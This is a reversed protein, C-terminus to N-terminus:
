DWVTLAKMVGSGPAGLVEIQKPLEKYPLTHTVYQEVPFLGKRLLGLVAGLDQQTANRCCLVSLERAHIYPHEFELPGKYLGVIGYRGGHALYQVGTEIAKRNGTADMVLTPLDGSTIEKLRNLPDKLGNVTYEVGLKERCYNLRDENIDLAIVKAGAIRAQAIIGTGIPGCGMVLMYEEKQVAVRALAHAGIALPEVVALAEPSLDNAKILHSLPYSFYEQMGGDMHVGFLELSTCCNTKGNRCAICHGCFFYPSVMVQDGVEFGYDNSSVEVIKGALEHGLIRPYTFFPQRGAFAHYDTGCIGVRTIKVLAEGAKRKPLAKQALELHGPKHCIIYDM